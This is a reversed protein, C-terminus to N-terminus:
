NFDKEFFIENGCIPCEYKYRECQFGIEECDVIEMTYGCVPCGM